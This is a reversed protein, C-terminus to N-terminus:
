PRHRQCKPPRRLQAAKEKARPPLGRNAFLEHESLIKRARQLQYQRRRPVVCARQRKRSSLRRNKRDGILPNRGSILKSNSDPSQSGHAKIQRFPGGHQGVFRTKEKDGFRPEIESIADRSLIAIRLASVPISGLVRQDVAGEAGALCRGIGSRRASM